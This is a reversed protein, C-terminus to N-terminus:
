NISSMKKTDIIKGDIELSYHYIGKSFESIRVEIEGKGRNDIKENRVIRGTADYIKINANKIDARLFYKIKTIGQFPNPTNQELKALRSIEIKQVVNPNESLHDILQEMRELKNEIDKYKQIKQELIEVRVKLKQNDEQCLSNCPSNSLQQFSTEAQSSTFFLNEWSSGTWVKVKDDSSDYYMTGKEPSTPANGPILRAFESIHLSGNVQLKNNDFEGYILPTPNYQGSQNNSQIILKNSINLSNGYGAWHGIIINDSGIIDQGAGFGIFTNRSGGNFAGAQSGIFTNRDGSSNSSGAKRGIFTNISGTTNNFGALGGIFTNWNGVSNIGAYPGIIINQVDSDGLHLKGDIKADKNCVDLGYDYQSYSISTLLISILLTLSLKKM